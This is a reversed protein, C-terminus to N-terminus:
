PFIRLIGLWGTKTLILTSISLQKRCKTRGGARTSIRMATRDPLCFRSVNSFERCGIRRFSGSPRRKAYKPRASPRLHGADDPDLFAGDAASHSQHERREGAHLVCLYAASRPIANEASECGNPRRGTRLQGAPAVDPMGWKRSLDIGYRGGDFGSARLEDLAKIVTNTAVISRRSSKSKPSIRQQMDSSWRVHLLHREWDVDDWQLALLEGKRLGTLGAVIFLARFPFRAHSVLRRFEHPRLFRPPNSDTRIREVRACPNELLYGWAVAQNCLKRLLSVHNVVTAKALHQDRIAAATYRDIDLPAIRGLPLKGFVSILHDLVSHYSRLTSPKLRVTGYEHLWLDCFAEFTIKKLQVDHGHHLKAATEILAIEAAKKNPRDNELVAKRPCLAKDLIQRAPFRHLRTGFGCGGQSPSLTTPSGWIGL